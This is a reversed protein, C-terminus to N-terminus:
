AIECGLYHLRLARTHVRSHKWFVSESLTLSQSILALLWWITSTHVSNFVAAKLPSKGWVRKSVLPKAVKENLFLAWRWIGREPPLRSETFYSSFVIFTNVTRMIAQRLPFTFMELAVMEQCYTVKYSPRPSLRYVLWTPHCSQSKHSFRKCFTDSYFQWWLRRCRWCNRMEHTSSACRTPCQM